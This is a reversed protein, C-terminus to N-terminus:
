RHCFWFDLRDKLKKYLKVFGFKEFYVVDGKKLKGILFEGVGEVISNDPMKIEVDLNKELSSIWAISKREKKNSQKSVFHFKRPKAIELKDTSFTLANSLRYFGDEILNLDQSPILFEQSIKRNKITMRPTGSIKIKTPNEVFSYKELNNLLKKNLSYLVDIAVTSNSKTLGMNTIFERIAEPEIGRDKLSQLSWLRPDNWGFYKGANVEESGKSKSIKVGEIKLHGNYISEPNEWGFIKRIFNQVRTSMYHDVGRLVHTTNILHDDIGWSFEMTPYVRYKNKTKPHPRDSIKFMVRDRFAPDPDQMSTKLRIVMTGPKTNKDFMKKWNEFHKEDPLNRCPCEKRSNKLERFKEQSCRCCYMYGKKILEEAYKYYIENRDSKYLIKKYNVGIWKLSDEILQYSKPEIQKKESGITDDIFLVLEGNYKKVYEDNLIVARANGIHLPGSPFPAFRMVVKGHKANALEPLGIRIERKNLLCKLNEFEKKQEEDELSNVDEIIKQIIPITNKIDKKELGEVFLANLIPGQTAKGNHNTANELAYAKIVEENVM